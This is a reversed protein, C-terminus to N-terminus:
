GHQESLLPMIARGQGWQPSVVTILNPVLREPVGRQRQWPQPRVKVRSALRRAM